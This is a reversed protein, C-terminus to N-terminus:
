PRKVRRLMADVRRSCRKLTACSSASSPRISRASSCRPRGRALRPHRDASVDLLGLEQDPEIEAATITTFGSVRLAANREAGVTPKTTTAGGAGVYVELPKYVHTVTADSSLRGRIWGRRLLSLVSSTPVSRGSYRALSTGEREAETLAFTPWDLQDFPQLQEYEALDPALRAPCRRACRDSRRPPRSREGHARRPSRRHRRLHRGGRRASSANPRLRPHLHPDFPSSFSPWGTGSSFKAESSFLPLGCLRCAYVGPVKHDLLM